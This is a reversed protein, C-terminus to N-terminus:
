LVIPSKLYYDEVIKQVELFMEDCETRIEVTKKDRLPNWLRRRNRVGIAAYEVAFAPCTKSLRQFEKGDGSGFNTADSSKCKVEGEKFVDLYDTSDAYESFLRPLLPHATRLNYSSQFLGAEATDATTNNDPAYYGKCYKGSTERMGLSFLMVYLHRLTDVGNQTNDMSADSFEKTYWALGDKTEDNTNAKSMEIAYDENNMLRCYSRAFMLAMGKTYGIPAQGREKWSYSAITSNAAVECIKGILETKIDVSSVEINLFCAEISIIVEGIPYQDWDSFIIQNDFSVSIRPCPQHYFQVTTNEKISEVYCLYQANDAFTVVALQEAVPSSPNTSYIDHTDIGYTTGDLVDIGPWVGPLDFQFIMRQLTVVFECEFKSTSADVYLIKAVFTAKPTVTDGEFTCLLFDNIKM